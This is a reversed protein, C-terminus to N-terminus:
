LAQRRFRLWAIGTLAFGYLLAYGALALMVWLPVPTWSLYTARGGLDFLSLQPLLATMGKFLMKGAPSAGDYGMVLARTIMSSGFVLVFGSTAAATPTMIVSLCLGIACVLALGVLKAFLYQLMIPEYAVHFLALAGATLLALGLFGIWTVAIAGALKGLILQFRTIPRALLPYLTRNKVEEPLLRCSTLVAIASGFAGLVTVALDKAFVELGQLGFFGLGAASLVILGGLIAVVWLDRRRVSELVVAGALAM